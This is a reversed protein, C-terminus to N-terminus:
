HHDKDAFELETSELTPQLTLLLPSQLRPLNNCLLLISSESSPIVPSGALRDTLDRAFTFRIGHSTTLLCLRDRRLLRHADFPPGVLADSERESYIM